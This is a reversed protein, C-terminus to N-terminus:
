GCRRQLCLRSQFGVECWQGIPRDVQPSGNMELLEGNSGLLDVTYPLDTDHRGFHRSM